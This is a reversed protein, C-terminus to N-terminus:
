VILYMCKQPVTSIMSSSSTLSPLLMRIMKLYEGDVITKFEGVNVWEGIDYTRIFKLWEAKELEVCVAFVQVEIGDSKWEKYMDNIKPMEKKCHGCDPDYFIVLTFDSQLQYYM